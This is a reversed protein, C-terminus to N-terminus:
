SDHILDLNGDHNTDFAMTNKVGDGNTDILFADLKGDGNSDFGVSNSKCLAPPKKKQQKKQLKKRKKEEEQEELNIDGMGHKAKKAYEGAVAAQEGAIKCQEMAEAMLARAGRVHDDMEQLYKKQKSRIELGRDYGRQDAKQSKQGLYIPVRWRKETLGHKVLSGLITTDGGLCGIEFLSRGSRDKVLTNAGATVLEEFVVLHGQSASISLPTSGNDVQPELDAGFLLLLKLVEVHGEQAAAYLATRGQCDGRDVDAGADLLNQVIKIQGSRSAAILATQGAAINVAAANICTSSLPLSLLLKVIDVHGQAAATFLPTQGDLNSIDPDANGRTLLLKAIDVFNNACALFLATSKNVTKEDSDVGNKILLRVCGISGCQAALSLPTSGDYSATTASAPSLALCEKACEVSDFCAARHLVSRGTKASRSPSGRKFLHRVVTAHGRTNGQCALFIPLENELVPASLDIKIASSGLKKKKKGGRITKIHPSIKDVNGELLGDIFERVSAPGQKARYMILSLHQKRKERSNSM